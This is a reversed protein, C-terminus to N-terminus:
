SQSDPQESPPGSPRPESAARRRLHRIRERMKAITAQMEVCSEHEITTQSDLEAIETRRDDAAM